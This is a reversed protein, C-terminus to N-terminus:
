KDTNVDHKFHSNFNYCLEVYILSFFLFVQLFLFLETTKFKAGKHVCSM